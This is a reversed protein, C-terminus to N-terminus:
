VQEIFFGLREVLLNTKEAHERIATKQTMERSITIAM